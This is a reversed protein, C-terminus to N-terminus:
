TAATALEHDLERAVVVGSPRTKPASGGANEEMAICTPALADPNAHTGGMRGGKWMIVVVVVLAVVAVAIGGIVASSV